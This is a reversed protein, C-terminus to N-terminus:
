IRKKYNAHIKAFGMNILKFVTWEKFIQLETFDTVEVCMKLTKGYSM